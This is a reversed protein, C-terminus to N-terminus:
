AESDETADATVMGYDELRMPTSRERKEGAQASTEGDIVAGNELHSFRPLRIYEIAM